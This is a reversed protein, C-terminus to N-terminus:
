RRLPSVRSVARPSSMRSPASLGSAASKTESAASRHPPASLGSARPIAITVIIRPIKGTGNWRASGLLRAAALANGTTMRTADRKEGAIATWSSTGITTQLKALRRDKEHETRDDRRPSAVEQPARLLLDVLRPLEPRVAQHGPDTGAPHALDVQSSDNGRNAEGATNCSPPPTSPV